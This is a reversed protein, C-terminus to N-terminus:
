KGSLYESLTKTALVSDTGMWKAKIMKMSKTDLDLLQGLLLIVANYDEICALYEDVCGLQIDHTGLDYKMKEIEKAADEFSDVQKQFDEPDLFIEAM